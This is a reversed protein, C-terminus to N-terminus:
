IADTEITPQINAQKVRRVNKIKLTIATTAAVARRTAAAAAYVKGCMVTTALVNMRPAIGRLWALAITATQVDRLWVFPMCM